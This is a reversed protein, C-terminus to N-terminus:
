HRGVPGARMVPLFTLLSRRWRSGIRIRRRDAHYQRLDADATCMATTIEFYHTSEWYAQLNNSELGTYAAAIMGLLSGARQHLVRDFTLSESRVRLVTWPETAMLALVNAGTILDSRYGTVLSPATVTPDRAPFLFGSPILLTKTLTAHIWGIIAQSGVIMPDWPTVEAVTSLRTHDYSPIFSGVPFLSPRLQLPGGGSPTGGGPSGGGPPGGPFLPPTQPTGSPPTLHVPPTRPPSRGQNDPPDDDPITITSALQSGPLHSRQWARSWTM